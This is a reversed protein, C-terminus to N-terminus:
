KSASWLTGIADDHTRVITVRDHQAIRRQEVVTRRHGGQIPEDSWILDSLDPGHFSVSADVADLFEDTEFVDVSHVALILADAVAINGFVVGSWPWTATDTSSPAAHLAQM